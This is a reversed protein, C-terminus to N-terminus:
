FGVSTVEMLGYIKYIRITFIFSLSINGSYFEIFTHEEKLDDKPRTSFSLYQSTLGQTTLLTSKQTQMPTVSFDLFEKQGTQHVGQSSWRARGKLKRIRKLTIFVSIIVEEALGFPPKHGLRKTVDCSYIYLIKSLNYRHNDFQEELETKWSFIRTVFFNQSGEPAANGLIHEISNQVWSARYFFLSPPFEM